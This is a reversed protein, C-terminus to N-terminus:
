GAQQHNWLLRHMLVNSLRVHYGEYKLKVIQANRTLIGIGLGVHAQILWVRLLM